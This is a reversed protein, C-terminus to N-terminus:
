VAYHIGLRTVRILSPAEGLASPSSDGLPLALSQWNNIIQCHNALSSKISSLPALVEIAHIQISMKTSILDSKKLRPLAGESHSCHFSPAMKYGDWCWAVQLNGAQLLHSHSKEFSMGESAHVKVKVFHLDPRSRLM